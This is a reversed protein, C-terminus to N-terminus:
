ADLRLALDREDLLYPRLQHGLLMPRSRHAPHEYRLPPASKTRESNRHHLVPDNLPRDTQYELRNEFRIKAFPRIPKSRPTTTPIRDRRNPLPYGVTVIM